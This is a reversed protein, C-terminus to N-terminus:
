REKAERQLEISKIGEKDLKKVLDALIKVQTEIFMPENPFASPAQSGYLIFLNPYGSNCLGLHTFVDDKWRERFTSGEKGKINTNMLSGTM